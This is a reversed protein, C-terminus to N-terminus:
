AKIMKRLGPIKSVLICVPITIALASLWMLLIAIPQPKMDTFTLRVTEIFFPHIIYVGFTMSSIYKIIRGSKESFQKKDFIQKFLLFVAVAYLVNNFYFNKYTILYPKGQNVSMFYTFVVSFVVSVAGLIYIINRTKKKLTFNHLYWGLVYYFSFGLFTHFSFLKLTESLNKDDFTKIMQIIFPLVGQVIFGVKLFYVVLKENDRRVFQKLIPISIYLGIIMFLYWLHYHGQVFYLLVKDFHITWGKDLPVIVAFEITFLASWFLFIYVINKIYKSYILKIPLEKEEDLMLAGSIMTFVPVAFRSVANYLNAFFFDSSAFVTAEEIFKSSSHILVVAIVSFIKMMDFSYIRNKTLPSIQKNNM